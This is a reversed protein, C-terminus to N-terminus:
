EMIDIAHIEDTDKFIFGYVLPDESVLTPQADAPLGGMYLSGAPDASLWYRGKEEFIVFNPETGYYEFIADLISNKESNDGIFIAPFAHTQTLYIRTTGGLSGIMSSFLISFDECDGGKRILTEWCYAWYDRGDPDSIYTLSDIMFDFVALVQYINYDGEYDSIIDQTQDQISPNDFEIRKRLKDQYFKYNHIVKTDTASELPNVTLTKDKGRITGNDYWSEINFDNYLENDKVLISILINYTFDGDIKPATFYVIGLAREEKTPILIDKDELIWESPFSWNVEIGCRYIFLDNVGTNEITIRIFSGWNSYVEGMAWTINYSFGPPLQSENVQPKEVPEHPPYSPVDPAILDTESFEKGFKDDDDSFWTCGSLAPALFLLVLIVILFRKKM